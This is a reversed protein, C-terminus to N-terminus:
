EENPGFRGDFADGKKVDKAKLVVDGAAKNENEDLKVLSLKMMGSLVVPTEESSKQSADLTEVALESEPITVKSSQPVKAADLLICKSEAADAEIITPDLTVFQAPTGPRSSHHGPEYAAKKEMPIVKLSSRDESPERKKPVAGTEHRQEIKPIDEEAELQHQAKDDTQDHQLEQHEESEAHEPESEVTDSSDVPKCVHGNQEPAKEDTETNDTEETEQGKPIAGMNAIIKAMAQETEDLKRRLLDLEMLQESSDSAVAAAAVDATGAANRSQTLAFASSNSNNGSSGSPSYNVLNLTLFKPNTVNSVSTPVQDIIAARSSSSSISSAEPHQDLSATSFSSTVHETSSTSHQVAEQTEEVVAFNLNSIPADRVISDDEQVNESSKPDVAPSSYPLTTPPSQVLSSELPQNTDSATISQNISNNAETPCSSSAPVTLTASSTASVVEESVLSEVVKAASSALKEPESVIESPAKDQTVDQSCLDSPIAHMIKESIIHDVISEIETAVATAETLTREVLAEQAVQDLKDTTSGVQEVHAETVEENTNTAEVEEQNEVIIDLASATTESSSVPSSVCAEVVESIMESTDPKEVEVKVIFEENASGEDSAVVAEDHVEEITPGQASSGAELQKSSSEESQECPESTSVVELSAEDGNIIVPETSTTCHVTETIIMKEPVVDDASHELNYEVSTAEEQADVNGETELIKEEAEVEISKEFQKPSTEDIVSEATTTDALPTEVAKTSHQQQELSAKNEVVVTEEVVSQQAVDDSQVDSTTANKESEEGSEIITVDRIQETSNQEPASVVADVVEAKTIETVSPVDPLAVAPEDEVPTLVDEPVTVESTPEVNNQESVSAAENTEIKFTEKAEIATKEEESIAEPQEVAAEDKVTASMEEAIEVENALEINNQEILPVAETVVTEKADIPADTAETQNGSQEVTPEEVPAAAEVANIKKAEVTIEVESATSVNESAAAEVAVYKKVEATIEVESATVANEPEITEHIVPEDIQADKEEGVSATESAVIVSAEIVDVEAIDTSKSEELAEKETEAVNVTQEQAIEIEQPKDGDQAINLTSEPEAAVVIETDNLVEVVPKPKQEDASNSAEALNVDEVKEVTEIATQEKPEAEASLSEVQVFTSSELVAEEKRAEGPTESFTENTEEQDTQLSESEGTAHETSEAVVGTDISEVVELAQNTQDEVTEHSEVVAASQEELPTETTTKLISEVSEEIVQSVVTSEENDTIPVAIEEKTEISAVQSVFDEVVAEKEETVPETTVPTSDDQEVKSDASTTEESANSTENTASESSEPSLEPAESASPINESTIKEVAIEQASECVDLTPVSIEASSVKSIDDETVDQEVDQEVEVEAEESLVPQVDNEKAQDDLQENAETTEGAATEDENQPILDTTQEKPTTDHAIEETAQECVNENQVTNNLDATTAEPNLSETFAEAVIQEKVEKQPEEVIVNDVEASQEDTSVQEIIDASIDVEDATNDEPVVTAASIETEVRDGVVEDAIKQAEQEYSPHEDAVDTVLKDADTESLISTAPIPSQVEASVATVQDVSITEFVEEVVPSTTAAANSAESDSVFRNIVEGDVLKQTAPDFSPLEFSDLAARENAVEEAQELVENVLEEAVARVEAEKAQEAITEEMQAALAKIAMEEADLSSGTAAEVEMGSLQKEESSAQEQHETNSVDVVIEDEFTVGKVVSVEAPEVPSEEMQAGMAKIVIEEADNSSDIAAEVEIKPSQNDESSVQEQQETRPVEDEFTVDNVVPEVVSDSSSQALESAKENEFVTDESQVAESVPSDVVSDQVTETAADTSSETFQEEKPIAQVMEHAFTVEKLVQIVDEVTAEDDVPIEITDDGLKTEPKISEFQEVSQETIIEDSLPVEKEPTLQETVEVSESVTEENACAEEITEPENTITIDDEVKVVIEEKMEKEDSIPMKSIETEIASEEISTETEIVNEPLKKDCSEENQESQDVIMPESTEGLQPSQEVSSREAELVTELVPQITHVVTDAISAPISEAQTVEKIEFPEEIAQTSVVAEECIVNEETVLIQQEIAELNETPEDLSTSAQETEPKAIEVIYTELPEKDEFNEIEAALAAAEAQEVVMEVLEVAAAEAAENIKSEAEQLVEDVVQSAVREIIESTSEEENLQVIKQVVIGDVVKETAPDYEPQVCEDDNTAETVGSAESKDQEVPTATAKTVLEEVVSSDTTAPQSEPKAALQQYDVSIEAQVSHNFSASASGNSVPGVSVPAGNEGNAIPQGLKTTGSDPRKIYPQDPATFVENRFTTDPKIEPYPTAPTKKFILKLITYIFFSVIGITYLPMIFGMSNASKTSQHSGAGMPPRMGPIPGPRGEVIRPPSQPRESHVSGVHPIARGRERMAPHITEPRLHPPREQRISHDEVTPGINRKRFLNQQNPVNISMNAFTEEQDLVVDCCGSGRHDKVIPKTQTPGVMMPYFVKPWLIAICGVVTVMIILTKRPGLTGGNPESHRSNATTAM